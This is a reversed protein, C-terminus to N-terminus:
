RSRSDPSHTIRSATRGDEGSCPFVGAGQIGHLQTLDDHAETFTRPQGSRRKVMEDRVLGYHIESGSDRLRASPLDLDDVNGPRATAFFSEAEKELEAKGMANLRRSEDAIVPARKAASATRAETWKQHDAEVVETLRTIEDDRIAM